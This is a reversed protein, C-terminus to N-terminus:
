ETAAAISAVPYHARDLLPMIKYQNDSDWSIVVGRDNDSQRSVIFRDLGSPMSREVLPHEGLPRLRLRDPAIGKTRVVHVSQAESHWHFELSQKFDASSDPQQWQEFGALPLKVPSQVGCNSCSGDENIQEPRSILGYRRVLTAGCGTCITDNAGTQQTNGLYVHRIGMDSAMNRAEILTGLETRQVGTYKYAPHFAVLHLPVQDGLHALVWTIMNRVDDRSDNLGPIMLYSIELHRNSRAVQEIRSLIPALRANTSKRYFEDSVSKLSLSFIDICEILEDVPAEEIYFASKYVTRLGSKQALKSTEIVFEHWVVPDNYTWSITTIGNELCLNVIEQPTYRRIHREDLHSIQSTEWNQCFVCTMMCGINGLSLIRAGPSFHVVAETEIYEEAVPLSLGHNFTHLAGNVAGRVGCYGMQGNNPRCHRPCLGCEVKDASFPKWHMAPRSEYGHLRM